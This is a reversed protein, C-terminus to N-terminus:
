VQRLLPKRSTLCSGDNQHVVVTFCEFNLKWNIKVMGDHRRNRAFFKQFKMPQIIGLGALGKTKDERGGYDGGRSGRLIRLSMQTEARADRTAPSANAAPPSNGRRRM